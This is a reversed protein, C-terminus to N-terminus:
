RLSPRKKKLWETTWHTASDGMRATIVVIRHLKCVVKLLRRAGEHAAMDLVYARDRQARLIEQNIDSDKIPLCWDTIDDYTLVVDHREKIRPLVGTIQDAL